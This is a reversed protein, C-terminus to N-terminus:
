AVRELIPIGPQQCERRSSWNGIQRVDQEHTKIALYQGVWGDALPIALGADRDVMGPQVCIRGLVCGHEDVERINGHVGNKGIVYMGGDSGRVMIEDHQDHWVREEATLISLLLEMGREQAGELRATEALRRRSEEERQAQYRDLRAQREEETEVPTRVPQQWAYHDLDQWRQWTMNGTTTAGTTLWRDWIPQTNLSVTTTGTTTSNWGRWVYDQNLYSHTANWAWYRSEGVDVWGAPPTITTAM